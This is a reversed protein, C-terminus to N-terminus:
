RSLKLKVERFWISFLPSKHRVTFLFLLPLNLLNTIRQLCNHLWDTLKDMRVEKNTVCIIHLAQIDSDAVM